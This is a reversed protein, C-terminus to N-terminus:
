SNMEKIEGWKDIVVSESYSVYVIERQWQIAKFQALRLLLKKMYGREEEKFLIDNVIALIPMDPYCDDPYENFFLESCIYPVFSINEAITLVIRQNDSRTISIDDKFYIARMDDCDMWDSLRETMLMAHKKDFCAQLKGNYVWHLSNYYNGDQLRCTGFVIHLPKGMHKKHWLQLLEPRYEFDTINLASEPMIILNTEPYQELIKKVERAVIKMTMEKHVGSCYTMCPLSKIADYLHSLKESTFGFFWSLAWLSCIALFCSFAKGNKYWLVLVFSAPVLLFFVTLLQKGLIPLLLLLEPQQTLLILPHMLPYGELVGFIWLSYRDVWCIFFFLTGVWLFLRGVSSQILFYTIITTAGYFLFGPLLAQYLVMCMGIFFGLWWFDGALCAVIFVGEYLHFSFVIFGWIYGQIFSLNHIHTIYLLPVPFLFVLWWLITSYMFSIGYLFASSVLFFWGSKNM